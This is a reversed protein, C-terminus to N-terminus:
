QGGPIAKVNHRGCLYKVFKGNVVHRQINTTANCGPYQCKTGKPVGRVAKADARKYAKRAPQDSRKEDARRQAAKDRNAVRAKKKAPSLKRYEERSATRHKAAAKGTKTRPRGVGVAV